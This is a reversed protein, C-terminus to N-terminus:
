RLWLCEFCNNQYFEDSYSALIIGDGVRRGISWIWRENKADCYDKGPIFEPLIFAGGYTPREGVDICQGSQLRRRMTHNRVNAYKEITAM